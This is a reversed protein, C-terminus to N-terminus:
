KVLVAADVMQIARVQRRAIGNHIHRADDYGADAPTLLNGRLRGQLGRLAAEEVM